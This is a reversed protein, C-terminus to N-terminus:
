QWVSVITAVIALMFTVPFAYWKRELALMREEHDQLQDNLLDKIDSMDAYIKEVLEKTSYYAGNNEM